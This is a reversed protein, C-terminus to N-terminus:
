TGSEGIPDPHFFTDEDLPQCEDPEEPAPLDTPVIRLSFYPYRSTFEIAVEMSQSEGAARELM